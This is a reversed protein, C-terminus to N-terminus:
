RIVYTPTNEPEKPDFKYYHVPTLQQQNIFTEKVRAEADQRAAWLILFCTLGTGIAVWFVALYVEAIGTLEALQMVDSRATEGRVVFGATQSQLVENSVDLIPYLCCTTATWRLFFKKMPPSLWFYGLILLIMTGYGFVATFNNLWGFALTLCIFICLIAWVQDSDWRASLVYLLCGILLSGIYGASVILLDNGGYGITVGAGGPHVAVGFVVGGTLYAMAVHSLEHFLVVVLKIPNIVPVSWLALVLAFLVAQLLLSKRRHPRGLRELAHAAAQKEEESLAGSGSSGIVIEKKQNIM